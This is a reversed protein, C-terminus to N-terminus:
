KHLFYLSYSSHSPYRIGFSWFELNRSTGDMEYSNGFKVVTIPRFNQGHLKDVNM